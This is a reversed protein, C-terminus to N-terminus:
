TVKISHTKQPKQRKEKTKVKSTKEWTAKTYWWLYKLDVIEANQWVIDKLAPSVDWHALASAAWASFETM